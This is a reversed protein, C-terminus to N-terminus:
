ILVPNTNVPDNPILGGTIIASVQEDTIVRIKGKLDNLSM